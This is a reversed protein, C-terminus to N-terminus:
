RSRTLTLRYSGSLSAGRAARVEVWATAPRGGSNVARIREPATGPRRSKAIVAAGLATRAGPRWLYLDARIDRPHMTVRMRARAPIWVPYVDYPDKLVDLRATFATRRVRRLLPTDAAFAARGSVWRIDDNPEMPDHPPASISLAAALDLAGWGTSADWGPRQLDRASLRLLQATQDASLGPDAAMLWAAAASVMPASFSTGDVRRYGDVVGDERDAWVPWPVLVGEGPAGLDTYLNQNSFGTPQDFANLAAVTLVHLDNAPQSRANSSRENGASAVVLAGSGFAFGTADHHQLCGPGEFGYSANIVRAGDRVAQRIAAATDACTGDGGYVRVRAGPLVGEAGLGDRPAGIVGAVATGHAIGDLFDAVARRDSRHPAPSPRAQTIWGGFMDPHRDDFGTEIVAILPIDAPDPLAVGAPVVRPLWEQDTAVPDAAAATGGVALSVAAVAAAFAGCLGKGM